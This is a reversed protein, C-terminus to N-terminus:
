KKFLELKKSELSELDKDVQELKKNTENLREQSEQDRPNKRIKEKLEDRKDTLREKREKLIKTESTLDVLEFKKQQSISYKELVGSILVEQKEFKSNVSTEIAFKDFYSSLKDFAGFILMFTAIGAVVKGWWSKWAVQAFNTFSIKGNSNETGKEKKVKVKKKGM